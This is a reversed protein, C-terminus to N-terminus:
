LVAWFWTVFCGQVDSDFSCFDAAVSWFYGREWAAWLLGFWGQIVQAYAQGFGSNILWLFYDLHQQEIQQLM